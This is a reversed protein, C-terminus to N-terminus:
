LDGTQEKDDSKILRRPVEPVGKLWMWRKSVTHGVEELWSIFPTFKHMDDTKGELSDMRNNLDVVSKSIDDLHDIIKLLLENEKEETM